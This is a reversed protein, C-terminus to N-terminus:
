QSKRELAEIRRKADEMEHAMSDPPNLYLFQKFSRVAEKGRGLKQELLGKRYWPLAAYHDIAIAKEFCKLADDFAILKALLTGKRTWADVSEPDLQTAREYHFLAEDDRGVIELGYGKSVWGRPDDPNLRLTMDFFALFDDPGGAALREIWTKGGEESGESAPPMVLVEKTSLRHCAHEKQMELDPGPNLSVFKEYSHMADQHRGLKEECLAKSFWVVTFGPDLKLSKEFCFLAEEIHKWATSGRTSPPDPSLADLANGKLFWIKPNNPIIGIAKELYRLSEEWQENNQLISSQMIWAELYRPDIEVARKLAALADGVRGQQLYVQGMVVMDPARESQPQAEDRSQSEAGEESKKSSDMTHEQIGAIAHRVPM